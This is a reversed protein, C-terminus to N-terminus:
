RGCLHQSSSIGCDTRNRPKATVVRSRVAAKTTTPCSSAKDKRIWSIAFHDASARRDTGQGDPISVTDTASSPSTHGKGHRVFIVFTGRRETLEGVTPTPSPTQRQPPLDALATRGPVPLVPLHDIADQEGVTLSQPLTTSGVSARWEEVRAHIVEEELSSENTLRAAEVALRLESLEREALLKAKLEEREAARLAQEAAALRTKEDLVAQLYRARSSRSSSGGDRFPLQGFALVNDQESDGVWSGYRAPNRGFNSRRTEMSCSSLSFLSFVVSLYLSFDIFYVALIPLETQLLVHQM